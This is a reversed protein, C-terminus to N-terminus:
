QRHTYCQGKKETGPTGNADAICNYETMWQKETKGGYEIECCVAKAAYAASVGLLSGAFILAILYKM